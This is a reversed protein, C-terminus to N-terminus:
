LNGAVHSVGENDTANSTLQVRLEKLARYYITATTNAPRNVIEGVERFTMGEFLHLMLIERTAEPLESLADIAESEREAVVLLEFATPCDAALKSVEEDTPEMDVVRAQNRSRERLISLCCNRCVTFLWPRFPRAPLYLEHRELLRLFTEQVAEMAADPDRMLALSFRLVDDFFQEAINDIALPDGAHFRERLEAPPEPTHASKDKAAIM